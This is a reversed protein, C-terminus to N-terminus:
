NRVVQDYYTESYGGSPTIVVFSCTKDPESECDDDNIEYDALAEVNALALASLSEDKQMDYMNYVAIIAVFMIIFVKKQM